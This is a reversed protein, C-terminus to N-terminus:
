REEIGLKRKIEQVDEATMNTVDRPFEGSAYLIAKFNKDKVCILDEIKKVLRCSARYLYHVYVCMGLWILSSALIIYDM